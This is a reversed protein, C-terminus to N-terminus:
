ERARGRRPTRRWACRSRLSMAPCARTARAWRMRPSLCAVRHPSTPPSTQNRPSPPSSRRSSRTPPSRALSSRSLGTCSISAAAPLATPPPCAHSATPTLPLIRAHTCAHRVSLCACLFFSLARTRVCLTIDALTMSGGVFYSGDCADEAAKLFQKLKPGDAHGEVDYIASRKGAMDKALECYMDVKAKDELSAGDICARRALHRCIASSEVLLLPGDRLVPLQGFTAYERWSPSGSYHFVSTYDLGTAELILRPLEGLGQLCFYELTIEPKEESSKKVIVSAPHKAALSKPAPAVACDARAASLQYSLGIAAVAGGGRLLSRRLVNM